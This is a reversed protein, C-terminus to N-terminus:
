SSVKEVSWTSETSCEVHCCYICSKAWGLDSEKISSKLDVVIAVGEPKRNGNTSYGVMATLVQLSPFLLDLGRLQYLHPKTALGTASSIAHQRMSQDAEQRLISLMIERLVQTSGM